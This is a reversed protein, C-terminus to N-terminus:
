VALSAALGNARTGSRDLAAELDAILDGTEELGASIRILDPAIGLAAKVSAPVTKHTMTAPVCILSEVGGLSVALNFLRTGCAVRQAREAGGSVRFSLVGGFGHQQRKALEHDPHAPLGPYHIAEVDGRRSLWAALANANHEHQRMRVALTKAGRLTLYADQPGLVAGVANQHFAIVDYLEPDDLVVAGGVVDSHGNVYKTTSHVVLDAGLELPRQFYPSCFTNDVALIQKSRKLAAIARIDAVRLLPNTPTEIWLLRTHERLASEVAVPNTTDVFSVDIGYRSLVDVFFRYTGGYCDNTAVIHDGGRLPACAAAVAAMGSAFALGFAGGELAAIQREFATRTPNATRSYDFGKDVGPADVTFTATQYIPVITAGTAVCPDQGARIARTAFGDTPRLRTSTTAVSRGLVHSPM